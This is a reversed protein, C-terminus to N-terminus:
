SGRLGALRRREAWEPTWRASRYVPEACLKGFRVLAGPLGQLLEVRAMERAERLDVASLARIQHSDGTAM